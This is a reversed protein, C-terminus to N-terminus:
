ILVSKKGVEQVYKYYNWGTVKKNPTKLEYGYPLKKDFMGKFFISDSQSGLVGANHYMGKDLWRDVNDIGFHFDFEKPVRTERGIKWACWLEAWMSMTWHQLVNYQLGEKTKEQKVKSSIPPIEKWLEMSMDFVDKWYSTPVRKILKQAGGSHNEREIILDKELGSIKVMADFVEDGKSMIYKAGIYSITDSMYWYDDDLFSSFDFPKTFIFDADHFFVTQDEMWKNTEWHKQLIHSQLSPQYNNDGKRTDEYFFFKVDKYGKKLKHWDNLLHLQTADVGLVVQIDKPDIGMEIFNNVYVEVEWTYRPIAPQCSLYIM